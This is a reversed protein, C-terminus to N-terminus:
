AGVVIMGSRTGRAVNKRGAMNPWSAGEGWPFARTAGDVFSYAYDTTNSDDWPWPWGSDPLTADDRGSLYEAVSARYEDKTSADKVPHADAEDIEYGDWAISGLWEAGEGTGIYFDARTGM